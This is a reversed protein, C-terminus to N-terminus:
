EEILALGFPRPLSWNMLQAGDSRIATVGQEHTFLFQGPTRSEIRKVYQYGRHREDSIAILERAGYIATGNQRQYDHIDPDDPRCVIQSQPTSDTLPVSVVCGPRLLTVFISNGDSFRVSNLHATDHEIEHTLQRLQWDRDHVFTPEASLGDRYAWWQWDSHGDFDLTFVVDLTACGLLLRDEFQCCAHLSYIWPHYISEELHTGERNWIEISNRRGIVLRRDFESVLNVRRAPTRPPRAPICRVISGDEVLAAQCLPYQLATWFRM